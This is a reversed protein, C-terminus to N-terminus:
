EQTQYGLIKLVKDYSESILKRSHRLDLTTTTQVIGCFYTLVVSKSSIFLNTMHETKLMKTCGTRCEM